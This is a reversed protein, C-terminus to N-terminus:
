GSRQRRPRQDLLLSGCAVAEFVRMNVDNKISRNFVLRSASYIKAMEEFYARGVFM